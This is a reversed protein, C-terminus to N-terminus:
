AAETQEYAYLDINKKYATMYSLAPEEGPKIYRSMSVWQTRGAYQGCWGKKIAMIKLEAGTEYGYQYGSVPNIPMEAKKGLEMRPLKKSIKRISYDPFCLNILKRIEEFELLTMESGDKIRERVSDIFM